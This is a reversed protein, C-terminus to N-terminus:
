NEIEIKKCIFVCVHNFLSVFNSGKIRDWIRWGGPIKNIVELFKPWEEKLGYYGAIGVTDIVNFGSQNLYSIFQRKSYAYQYFDLKEINQKKYAGFRGKIGRITNVYPISFIATGNSKIIRHAEDFFPKPGEKRHEVVGLSVYVDYYEDDRDIKLVDGVRVNLDPFLKLVSNITSTGWDIGEVHKYGLARLALVYRATGCGAEIIRHEKKVYRKFILDFDDLEGHMYKEYSNYSIAPEWHKDWFEKTAKKRYYIIKNNSWVKVINNEMHIKRQFWKNYFVGIV